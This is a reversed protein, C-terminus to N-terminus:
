KANGPLRSGLIGPFFVPFKGFSPMGIDIWAFFGM